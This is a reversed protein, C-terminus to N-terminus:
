TSTRWSFPDANPQLVTTSRARRAAAPAASPEGTRPVATFHWVLTYEGARASLTLSLRHDHSAWLSQAPRGPAAFEEHYNGMQATYIRQLEHYLVAAIASDACALRYGCREVVGDRLVVELIAPQGLVTSAQTATGTQPDRPGLRPLALRASSEEMGPPIYRALM